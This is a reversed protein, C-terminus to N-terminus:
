SGLYVLSLDAGSNVDLAGGSTQRVGLRVYDGVALTVVTSVSMSTPTGGVNSHSHASCIVTTGNQEISLRRFGTANGQFAANGIVMYRGAMPATIRAASGVVWASWENYSASDFNIFDDTATAISQSTSRSAKTALTRNAAALHGLAFLDRGDSVLWIAAQPDPAIDSMYKVGSIETTDGGVTVTCTRDSQVSIVTGVRLRLPNDNAFISAVYNLDM